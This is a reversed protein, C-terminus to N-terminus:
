VDRRLAYSNPFAKRFTDFVASATLTKARSLVEIQRKQEPTFKRHIPHTSPLLSATHAKDHGRIHRYVWKKIGNDKDVLKLTYMARFKCNCGRSQTQAGGKTVKTIPAQAKDCDINVSGKKTDTGRGKRIGYGYRLAHALIDKELETYTDYQQSTEFPVQFQLEDYDSEDSEYGKASECESEETDSLAKDIARIGDNLTRSQRFRPKTRTPKTPEEDFSEEEEANDDEEEEQQVVQAAENAEDAAEQAESDIYLDNDSIDFPDKETDRPM